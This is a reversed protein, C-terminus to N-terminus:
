VRWSSLCWNVHIYTTIDDRDAVSSVLVPTTLDFGVLTYHPLKKFKFIVNKLINIDLHVDALLAPM